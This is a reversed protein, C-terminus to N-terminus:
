LHKKLFFLQRPNTEYIRKLLAPVGEPNEWGQQKVSDLPTLRYETDKWRLGKQLDTLAFRNMVARFRNHKASNAFVQFKRNSYFFVVGSAEFVYDGSEEVELLFFDVIKTAMLM